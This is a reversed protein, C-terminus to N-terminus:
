HQGYVERVTTDVRACFEELPTQLHEAIWRATQVVLYPANPRGRYPHPTLFPADTEVMVLGPRAVSLAEQLDHSNKFTVTGSFSMYWGHQNCIRALEADGSFCHFVTREPAGEELLIRVVDEHADRDHIQMAKGLSKALRIHERFADHQHHRRTKRTRFYDLGTEGVARVREHGALRTIEAMADDLAGAEALAPIENPHLAVAALVRPDAEAAQVSWRAADLDCGVQIVGRVGLDEATDLIDRLGIHVRGDQMDIHTHNDVIPVPLPEPAVPFTLDRTHGSESKEDRRNTGPGSPQQEPRDGDTSGTSGYHEPRYAEPTAGPLTAPRDAPDPWLTANTRPHSM